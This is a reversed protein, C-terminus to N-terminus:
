FSTSPTGGDISTAGIQMWSSSFYIYLVETDSKFWLDGESPTSPATAAVTVGSASAAVAAPAFKTGDYALVQGSTAGTTDIEISDVFLVSTATNGSVTLGTLTGVSTLSSNVVGSALTNGTLDGADVSGSGGSVTAPAFKTGDYALVQGSTAGTTDIEISDVYLTTATVSSFVVSATNAVDQGIAITATSGESPTHTVTVGTGGSVDTMYNGTTDTGLDIADNVWATGNWKLFDGSAASTITVDGVDDLNNVIPIDAPQWDSSASVYKLFQGDSPSSVSVNTLDNLAANLSVTPTSAEGPTHSVSIGTGGSVDVVYNGVTDTGLNIPDNVWATGNWRLFDGDAVSSLSVNSVDNLETPLPYYNSGDNTFEWVDLTENWRVLVNSEVTGREVEIGANVSAATANSNLVIVNDEVTLETTNISTTTGNVTLNGGVTVDGTTEVSNFQVDDSTGVAQGISVTPTASEGTNNALTVGTGAVLSEVYDGTTDTGLAVSDASVTTSIQVNASGDFSVSGTVDGTLEITRATELASATDANGTLDGTVDGTFTADAGNTGNELIKSTGDSAYIDGVVDGTVVNFTVNDTTAVSQGIAVTATSGEGPTHTISIGTGASLDVMYNGTTDTGLEVSNASITANLTVTGSALDTLTASANGTVDGTLEVTITPDPKSLINSWEVNADLEGKTGSFVESSNTADPIFTFKGTSDDYGFFGVKAASGNHWRFEIGRDKNDDVTPATNGGLTFVPDTIAITTSTVTTTSGTVVLNGSISVNGSVTLSSLTGVSTLSSGIVDSALSFQATNSNYTFRDDISLIAANLVTGWGTDGSEPLETLNDVLYTAM